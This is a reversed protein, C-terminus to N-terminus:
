TNIELWRLRITASIILFIIEKLPYRKTRDVRPDKLENFHVLVYSEM